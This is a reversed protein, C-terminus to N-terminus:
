CRRSVFRYMRSFARRPLKWVPPARLNASGTIESTRLGAPHMPREYYLRKHFREKAGDQYYREATDGEGFSVVELGFFEIVGERARMFGSKRDLRAIVHDGGREVGAAHVRGAHLASLAGVRLRTGEVDLSGLRPVCQDHM